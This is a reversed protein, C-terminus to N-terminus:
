AEAEVKLEATALVRVADQASFIGRVLDGRSVVLRRIRHQMMLQCAERVTTEPSVTIVQSHMYNRVPEDLIALAKQELVEGGQESYTSLSKKDILQQMIDSMTVIGILGQNQSVVPVGSFGRRNCLSAVQEITTSELVCVVKRTMVDAVSLENGSDTNAVDQESAEFAKIHEDPIPNNVLSLYRQLGLVMPDAHNDINVMDQEYEKQYQQDSGSMAKRAQEPQAKELQAQEPQTQQTTGAEQSRTRRQIVTEHALRRARLQESFSRWQEVPDLRGVISNVPAVPVTGAVPAVADIAPAEPADYSFEPFVEDRRYTGVINKEYM